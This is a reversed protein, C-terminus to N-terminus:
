IMNLDRAKLVLGISTKKDFKKLLNKRHFNVADKGIFLKKAIAATTLEKSIYKLIEFERNSLQPTDETLETNINELYSSKSLLEDMDLAVHISYVIGGNIDTELAKTINAIWRTNGKGDIIKYCLDIPESPNKAFSQNTVNVLFYTDPHLIKNYVVHKDKKIAETTIDYYNRGKLNLLYPHLPGTLWILYPLKDLVVGLKTFDGRNLNSYDLGNEKITVLVHELIKELKKM